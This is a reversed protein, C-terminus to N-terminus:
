YLGEDGSRPAEGGLLLRKQLACAACSLYAIYLYLTSLWIGYSIACPLCTAYKRFAALYTLFGDGVVNYCLNGAKDNKIRWESGIAFFRIILDKANSQAMKNFLNKVENLIVILHAFSRASHCHIWGSKHTAPRVALTRESYAATYSM